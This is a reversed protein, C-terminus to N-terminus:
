GGRVMKVWRALVRIGYFAMIAGLMMAFHKIWTPFDLLWTIWGLNVGSGDPAKEPGSFPSDPFISLIWGLVTGIGSILFNATEVLGEIM